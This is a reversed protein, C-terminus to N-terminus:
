PKNKVVSDAGSTTYGATDFPLIFLSWICLTHPVHFSATTTGAGAQLSQSFWSLSPIDARRASIQFRCSRFIFRLALWVVEVNTAKFDNPIQNGSLKWNLNQLCKKNVGRVGKYFVECIFSTSPTVHDEKNHQQLKSTRSRQSNGFSKDRIAKGRHHWQAPTTTEPRIKSSDYTDRFIIEMDNMQCWKATDATAYAPLQHSTNVNRGEGPSKYAIVIRPSFSPFSQSSHKSHGRLPETVAHCKPM